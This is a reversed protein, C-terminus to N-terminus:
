KRKNEIMERVHLPIGVSQALAYCDAIKEEGICDVVSFWCNVGSEKCSKAFALMEGFANEIQPRCIKNYDKENPANLSINVGDLHGKLEPAIDRGNLASGHGNTNLRTKGGKEHVAKCVALMDELRYTPEGYGCFVIEAYRAPDGIQEIIQEASPEEGKLWLSYGEYQASQDRVCFACRNPCRNTLNVYLNNGISYTYTDM